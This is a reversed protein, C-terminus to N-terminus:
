VLSMKNSVMSGLKMVRIESCVQKMGEEFTLSVDELARTDGFTKTVHQFEIAM